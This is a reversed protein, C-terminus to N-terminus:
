RDIWKVDEMCPAQEVAKQASEFEWRSLHLVEQVTRQSLKEVYLLNTFTQMRRSPIGDLIGEAKQIAKRYQELCNRHQIILEELRCITNDLGRATGGGSPVSSLHQSISKMRGKEWRIKEELAVANAKLINIDQLFQIDKNKIKQEKKQEDM